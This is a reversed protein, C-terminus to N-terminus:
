TRGARKAFLSTLLARAFPHVPGASGDLDALTRVIVADTLESQDEGAIHALIQARLPIATLGTRIERALSVLPGTVTVHFGPEVAYDGAALGTEEGVERLISATIDVEGDAKIDRVDIFGGPLYTQGANLHGSRQRGLIVHGDQSRILASGFADLAGAAPFGADRWSLYSKFDTRMLEVRLTRGDLWAEQALHIVGNFMAPNEASRHVWHRNIAEANEAAYAWASAVVVLKCDDVQFVGDPM